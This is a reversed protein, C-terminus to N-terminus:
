TSEESSPLSELLVSSLTTEHRACSVGVVPPPPLNKAPALLSM